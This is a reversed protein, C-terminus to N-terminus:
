PIALIPDDGGISLGSNLNYSGSTDARDLDSQGSALRFLLKPSIGINGVSANIASERLRDQLQQTLPNISASIPINVKLDDQPNFTGGNFIFRNGEVVIPAVVFSRNPNITVKFNLSTGEGSFEITPIVVTSQVQASVHSPALTALITTLTIFINRDIM